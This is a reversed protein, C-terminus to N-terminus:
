GATRVPADLTAFAKATELPHRYAPVFVNTMLRVARRRVPSGASRRSRTSGPRRCRRPRRAHSRSTIASRSTSSGPLTRPRPRGCCSPPGAGEREWPMSTMVSCRRCRCSSATSWRGPRSSRVRDRADHADAGRAPPDDLAGPGPRVRSARRPRVGRAVGARDGAAAHQEARRLDAPRRGGVRWREVSSRSTRPRGSAADAPPSWTPWSTPRRSPSLSRHGSRDRRAVSDLRALAGGAVPLARCRHDPVDRDRPRSGRPVAAHERM